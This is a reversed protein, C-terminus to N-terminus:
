SPLRDRRPRPPYVREPIGLLRRLRNNSEQTQEIYRDVSDDERAEAIWKDLASTERQEM